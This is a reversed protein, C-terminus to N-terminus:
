IDERNLQDLVEKIKFLSSKMYVSIWRGDRLQRRVREYVKPVDEWRDLLELQKASVTYVEGTISGSGEALMLYGQHQLCCVGDLVGDRGRTAGQLLAHAEHGARLSGYVLVDTGVDM